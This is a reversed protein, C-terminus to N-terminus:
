IGRKYETYLATALGSQMSEPTPLTLGDKKLAELDMKKIM